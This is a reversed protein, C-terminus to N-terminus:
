LGELLVPTIAGSDQAWEEEAEMVPALQSPMGSRTREQRVALKRDRPYTVHLGATHCRRWPAGSMPASPM